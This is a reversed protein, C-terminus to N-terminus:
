AKVVHLANQVMQGSHLFPLTFRQGRVPRGKSIKLSQAFMGGEMVIVVANM